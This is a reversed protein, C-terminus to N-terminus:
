LKGIMTFRIVETSSCHPQLYNTITVVARRGDEFELICTDGIPEDDLTHWRRVAVTGQSKNERSVIVYSGSAIIESCNARYLNAMGKIIAM